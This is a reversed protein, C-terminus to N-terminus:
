YVSIKMWITWTDPWKFTWTGAAPISDFDSGSTSPRTASHLNISDEGDMRSIEMGCDENVLVMLRLKFMMETSVLHALVTVHSSLGDLFDNQAWWLIGWTKHLSMMWFLGEEGKNQMNYISWGQVTTPLGPSLPTRNGLQKDGQFWVLVTQSNLHMKEGWFYQMWQTGTGSCCDGILWSHSLLAAPGQHWTVM